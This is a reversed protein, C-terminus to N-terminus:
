PRGGGALHSKLMRFLESISATAGRVVGSEDVVVNAAYGGIGYARHTAGDADVAIPIGRACRLALRQAEADDSAPLIWVFAVGAPGFLRAMQEVPGPEDPYEGRISDEIYASAFRVVVTRGRLSELTVPGGNLSEGRVWWSVAFEPAAQGVRDRADLGSGEGGVAVYREGLLRVLRPRIRTRFSEVSFPVIQDLRGQRDILAVDGSRAGYRAQTLSSAADEASPAYDDILVPFGVREGVALSVVEPLYGSPDHVCVVQLGAPRYMAHIAQLERLPATLRSRDWFYALVVQGRLHAMSFPPANVAVGHIEPAPSGEEAEREIARGHSLVFHVDSRGAPIGLIMRPAYGQDSQARVVLQTEPLFSIRYSGDPGIRGWGLERGDPPMAFAVVRGAVPQGDDGTVRGSVYSRGTPELVLDSAPRPTEGPVYDRVAAARYGAKEARLTYALGHVLGSVRYMGDPGSRAPAALHDFPVFISGGPTRLVATVSITAADVPMGNLDAVRGDVEATPRVTVNTRVSERSDVLGLAMGALPRRPHEAYVLVYRQGDPLRGAVKRQAVFAGDAGAVAPPEFVWEGAVVFANPVANTEPDLVSGSILIRDAGSVARRMAVRALEALDSEAPHEDAVRRWAARAEDPRGLSRLCVGVRYRARARDATSAARDDAIATYNSVATELDSAAGRRERDYAAAFPDAGAHGSVSCIAAALAAALVGAPNARRM